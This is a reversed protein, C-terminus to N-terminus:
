EGAASGRGGFDPERGGAEGRGLAQEAWRVSRLVLDDEASLIEDESAGTEIPLRPERELGRDRVLRLTRGVEPMRELYEEELAAFAHRGVYTEINLSADGAESALYDVIGRLEVV